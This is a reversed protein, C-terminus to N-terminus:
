FESWVTRKLLKGNLDSEFKLVFSNLHILRRPHTLIPSYIDKPSKVHMCLSENSRNKKLDAAMYIRYFYKRTLLHIHERTKSLFKQTESILLKTIKKSGIIIQLSLIYPCCVTNISQIAHVHVYLPIFVDFPFYFPNSIMSYMESLTCLNCFPQIDFFIRATLLIGAHAEELDRRNRTSHSGKGLLIEGTSSKVEPNSYLFFNPQIIM